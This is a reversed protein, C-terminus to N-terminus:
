FNKRGILEDISLNFFDAIKWLDALSPEVQDNEWYSIKRQTVELKEALESQKLNESERLSRMIQGFLIKM